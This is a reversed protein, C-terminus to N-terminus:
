AHAAIYNDKERPITTPHEMEVYGVEPVDRDSASQTM